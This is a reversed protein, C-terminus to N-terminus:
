GLVEMLHRSVVSDHQLARLSAIFAAKALLTSVIEAIPNVSSTTAPDDLLAPPFAGDAAPPADGNGSSRDTSDGAASGDRRRDDTAITSRVGGQALDSGLVHSPVFGETNVNALNNAAVDLRLSAAHLGSLATAMVSGVNSVGGVAAMAM